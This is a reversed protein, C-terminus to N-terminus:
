GDSLDHVQDEAEQCDLRDSVVPGAQQVRRRVRCVPGITKGSPRILDVTEAKFEASFQRRPRPAMQVGMLAM